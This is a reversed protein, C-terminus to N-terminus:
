PEGPGPADSAAEPLPATFAQSLIDAFDGIAVDAGIQFPNSRSTGYRVVYMGPEEVLAFDFRLCQYRLFRGWAGPRAALVPVLSGTPEIRELSAPPRARDRADLQIVAM